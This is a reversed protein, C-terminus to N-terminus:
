KSALERAVGELGDRLEALRERLTDLRHVSRAEAEIVACVAAVARTLDDNIVVYDYATAEDIEEIARVVRQHMQGEDERERSRLRQILVAASPPLIFISVVDDRRQRVQRAGQVEIDLVAHKGERQVRDVEETLTGYLYGGYPAWELFAGADVRRRFDRDSVFHYDVGDREGKRMPRTTASVSYGLDHRERLLARAITTKGGGSPSSLIVLFPTM